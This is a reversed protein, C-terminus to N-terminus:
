IPAARNIHSRRLAGQGVGVVNVGVFPAGNHLLWDAFAAVGRSILSVARKAAARHLSATSVAAL